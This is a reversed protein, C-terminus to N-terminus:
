LHLGTAQHNLITQENGQGAQQVRGNEINIYNVLKNKIDTIIQNMAPTDQNFKALSYDKLKGTIGIQTALSFDNCRAKELLIGWLIDPTVAGINAATNMSGMQAKSMDTYHQYLLQHKKDLEVPTYVMVPQGTGKGNITAEVDQGKLEVRNYRDIYLTNNTKESQLRVFNRCKGIEDNLIKKAEYIEEGTKAKGIARDIKECIFPLRRHFEEILSKQKLTDSELKGIYGDVSSLNPVEPTLHVTNKTLLGEGDALQGSLWKASNRRLGTRPSAAGVEEPRNGISGLGPRHDTLKGTRMKFVLIEAMCKRLNQTTAIDEEM